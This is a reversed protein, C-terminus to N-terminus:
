KKVFNKRTEEDRESAPSKMGITACPRECWKLCESVALSSVQKATASADSQRGAANIEPLAPFSIIENDAPIVTNTTRLYQNAEHRKQAQDGSCASILAIATLVASSYIVRFFMFDRQRNEEARKHTTDTPHSIRNPEAPTTKLFPRLM